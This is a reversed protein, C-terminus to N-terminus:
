LSPYLEPYPMIGRHISLKFTIMTAQDTPHALGILSAGTKKIPRDIVVMGQFSGGPTASFRAPSCICTYM